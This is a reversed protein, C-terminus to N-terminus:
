REAKTIYIKDPNGFRKAEKHAEVPHGQSATAITLRNADKTASPGIKDMRDEHSDSATGKRQSEKLGYNISDPNKVMHALPNACVGRDSARNVGDGMQGNFAFDAGDGMQNKATRPKYLGENKELGTKAKRGLTTNKM